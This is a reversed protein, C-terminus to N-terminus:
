CRKFSSESPYSLTGFIYLINNQEAVGNTCTFQIVGCGRDCTSLALAFLVGKPTDKTSEGKGRVM